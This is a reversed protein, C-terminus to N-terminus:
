WHTAELILRRWHPVLSWHWVTWGRRKTSRMVCWRIKVHASLLLIMPRLVVLAITVTHRRNFFLLMPSNEHLDLKLSSYHSAIAHPTREAVHQGCDRDRAPVHAKKGRQYTYDSIAFTALMACKRWLLSLDILEPM